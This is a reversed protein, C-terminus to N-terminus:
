KQFVSTVRQSLNARRAFKAHRAHVFQGDHLLHLHRFDRTVQSVAAATAIECDLKARVELARSRM